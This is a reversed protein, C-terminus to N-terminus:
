RSNMDRLKELIYSRGNSSTVNFEPQFSIDFAWYASLQVGSEEMIRAFEYFRRKREATEESPNVVGWEGVFLPKQNKAAVAMCEKIANKELNKFSDYPMDGWYIHVTTTDMPSPNDATIVEEFQAITDQTWNNERINHWASARPLADGSFIPRTKDFGRVLKAFEVYATLIMKRTLMDAKTRVAPTGLVEAVYPLHEGPLDCSLAYENGFEWGWVAPSDKYRLVVDKAYNRAFERTKSDANGWASVPEKMLDPIVTHNWFLSPIVGVGLREAEAIFDDMRKFYEARDKFYLEWNVPHFPSFSARIFPIKYEALTQLGAKWSSDYPKSADSVNRIFGDFYNIGYAKVKEGNKYFVGDKVTLFNEGAGGSSISAFVFLLAFIRLLNM